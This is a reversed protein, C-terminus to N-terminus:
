EGGDCVGDGLRASGASRRAIWGSGKDRLREALRHARRRVNLGAPCFAKRRLAASCRLRQMTQWIRDIGERVVSSRVGPGGRPAALACENELMLQSISLENAQAVALLEAATHFPFPVATAPKESSADVGDEVIFGGGISFYTREDLLRVRRM